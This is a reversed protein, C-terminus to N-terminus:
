LICKETRIRGTVMNLRGTGQRCKKVFFTKKKIFTPWINNEGLM